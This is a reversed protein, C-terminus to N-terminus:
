IGGHGGRSAPSGLAPLVPRGGSASVTQGLRWRLAPGVVAALSRVAAWRSRVARGVARNPLDAAWAQLASRGAVARLRLRPMEAELAARRVEATRMGHSLTTELHDPDDRQLDVVWDEVGLDRMLAAVKSDFGLAIFPVGTLCALVLSHFRMGILFDCDRMLDEAESTTLQSLDFERVRVNPAAEFREGFSRLLALDTQGKGGQLGLLRLELPEEAAVRSLERHLADLWEGSRGSFRQDLWHFDNAALSLAVRRMGDGATGSAAPTAQTGSRALLADAGLHIRGPQVGWSEVTAQALTDRVIVRDTVNLARRLLPVSLPQRVEGTGVAYVLVPTGLLHALLIDLLVAAMGVPNNGPEKLLGGGGFVLGDARAIAWARQAVSERAVAGVGFRTRAAAPNRSIVCPDALPGLASLIEALIADDGFNDFGYYGSIVVRRPRSTRWAQRQEQPTM